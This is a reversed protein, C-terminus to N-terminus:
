ESAPKSRQPAAMSTDRGTDALGDAAALALLPEVHEVRGHCLAADVLLEVGPIAIEAPVARHREPNPRPKSRVM